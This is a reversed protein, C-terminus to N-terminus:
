NVTAVNKPATRRARIWHGFLVLGTGALTIVLNVIGYAIVESESHGAPEQGAV